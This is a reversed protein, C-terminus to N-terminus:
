LRNPDFTSHAQFYFKALKCTIHISTTLPQLYNVPLLDVCYGQQFICSGPLAANFIRIEVTRPWSVWYQRSMNDHVPTGNTGVSSLFECVFFFVDLKLQM